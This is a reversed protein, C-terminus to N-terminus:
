QNSTNPDNSLVNVQEFCQSPFITDCKAAVCSFLAFQGLQFCVANLWHSFVYHTKSGHNFIFQM